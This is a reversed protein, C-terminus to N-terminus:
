GRYPIESRLINIKSLDYGRDRLYMQIYARAREFEGPRACITPGVIVESLSEPGPGRWNNDVFPMFLGNPRRRCKIVEALKAYNEPNWVQLFRYESEDQYSSHKHLLSITICHLAYELVFLRMAAPDANHPLHEALFGALKRHRKRLEADSYQISFTHNQYPDEHDARQLFGKKELSTTRFGLAFGNGNEAYARWKDLHDGRPSFATVFFRGVDEMGGAVDQQFRYYFTGLAPNENKQIEEQLAAFAYDMGHRLEKPDNLCFIDTLRITGNQLIGEFGTMDTYHYIKEPPPAQEIDAYIEGVFEHCLDGFTKFPQQATKTKSPTM